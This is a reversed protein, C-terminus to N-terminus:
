FVGLVIKLKVKVNKCKFSTKKKEFNSAFIISIQRKNSIKHKKKIKKIKKNHIVLKSFAIIYVVKLVVRMSTHIHSDQINILIQM